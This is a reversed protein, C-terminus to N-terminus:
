CCPVDKWPPAAHFSHKLSDSRLVLFVLVWSTDTLSTTLRWRVRGGVPTWGWARRLPRMCLWVLAQVGLQPWFATLCLKLSLFSHVESCFNRDKVVVKPVSVRWQQPAKPWTCRRVSQCTQFSSLALSSAGPFSLSSSAPLEWLGYALLSRTCCVCLCVCTFVFIPM